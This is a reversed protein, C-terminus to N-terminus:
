VKKFIGKIDKNPGNRSLSSCQKPAYELADIYFLTGKLKKIQTHSPSPTM